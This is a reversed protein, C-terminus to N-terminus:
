MIHIMHSQPLTVSWRPGEAKIFQIQNSKFTFYSLLVNVALYQRM